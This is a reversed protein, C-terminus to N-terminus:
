MWKFFLEVQWRYKYLLAIEKAKFFFNNTYYTFSRHLEPAYYVIRRVPTPYNSKNRKSSFRVTQDRLVNDEGDLLGEGEEIEYDPRFKERIIFFAGAKEIAFFMYVSLHCSEQWGLVLM